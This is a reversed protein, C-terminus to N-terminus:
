FYKESLLLEYYHPKEVLDLLQKAKVLYDEGDKNLYNLCVGKRYYAFSLRIADNYSKSLEIAQDLESIAKSLKKEKMLLISMNLYLNIKLKHLNQYDGYRDISKELLNRITLATDIPFVFLMSNLLFIDSYYLENKLSLKDWTPQLFDRLQQKDENLQFDILAKVIREIDYILTSIPKTQKYEHIENLFQELQNVDNITLRTFKQFLYHKQTHKYCNNIFFFEEMSMDLKDILQQFHSTKIDSNKQEFKSFASQSLINKSILTQTLNKQNRIEKFTSGLM